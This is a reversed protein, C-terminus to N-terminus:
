LTGDGSDPSRKEQRALWRQAEEEMSFIADQSFISAVAHYRSAMRLQLSRRVVIASIWDRGELLPFGVERVADQLERESFELSAQRLDALTRRLRLCEHDRLMTEWHLRLVSITIEGCWTERIVGDFPFVEYTIPM